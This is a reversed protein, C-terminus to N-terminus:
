IQNIFENYKDVNETFLQKKEGYSMNKFDELTLEKPANGSAKVDPKPTGNLLDTETQKKTEDVKINLVEIFSNTLEITKNEDESVVKDLLSEIQKDDIKATQFLREAKTRNKEIAIETKMKEIDALEKKRLEEDSMNQKELADYKGQLEDKESEIKKVRESLNNFKDKPVTLLALEKSLKEVKEETTELTEDNLIETIKEKM